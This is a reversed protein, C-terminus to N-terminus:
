RITMPTFRPSIGPNLDIVRLSFPFATLPVWLTRPHGFVWEPGTVVSPRDTKGPTGPGCWVSGRFAPEPHRIDPHCTM